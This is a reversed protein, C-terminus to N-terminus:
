QVVFSFYTLIYAQSGDEPLETPQTHNADKVYVRIYYPRNRVYNATNITFHHYYPGTQTTYPIPGMFPTLLNEVTLNQESATSFDYLNDSIKYKNYTLAGGPIYTGLEDTDYVGVWFNITKNYPVEIPDVFSTRTTDYRYGTTDNEYALLGFFTPQYNPISHSNGFIDKAGNLIWDEIIKMEGANLAQDYLPMRGLVADDTTLREHLWSLGTDGPLVRYTFDNNANNKVVNHLVLTNYSSEVTRFDPEFAGDHCAPVACRTSFIYNHIGLFSNSDVPTSSGGGGYNVNDYPNTPADPEVRETEKKCSLVVVGALAFLVSIHLIGKKM